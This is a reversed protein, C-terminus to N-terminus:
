LLHILRDEKVSVTIRLHLTKPAAAVLLDSLTQGCFIHNEKIKKFVFLFMGRYQQLSLIAPQILIFESRGMLTRSCCMVSSVGNWVPSLM